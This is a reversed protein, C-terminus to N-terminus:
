TEEASITKKKKQVKQATWESETIAKDNGILNVIHLQSPM